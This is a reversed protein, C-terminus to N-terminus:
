GFNVSKLEFDAWGTGFPSGKFLPVTGGLRLRFAIQVCISTFDAPIFQDYGLYDNNSM